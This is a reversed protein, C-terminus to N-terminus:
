PTHLVVPWSALSSTTPHGVWENRGWNSMKRQHLITNTNHGHIEGGAFLLASFFPRDLSLITRPPFWDSVPRKNNKFRASHMAYEAYQHFPQRTSDDGDLQTGRVFFIIITGWLVWCLLGVCGFFYIKTNKPRFAETLFHWGICKGGAM